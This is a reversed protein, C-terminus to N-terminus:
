GVEGVQPYGRKPLVSIEVPSVPIKSGQEKQEQRWVINDILILGMLFFAANHPNFVIPIGYVLSFWILARLIPQKFSFAFTAMTALILKLFLYVLGGELFIKPLEGEVYGFAKAYRSSGFLIIAGQYTSGLGIGTIINPYRDLNRFYTFDWALRRAQEGSKQGREFRDYFNNFAKEMKISVPNDGIALLITLIIILPLLLRGLVKGLDKLSYLAYVIILTYALYVLVAGRSGTMFAAALGFIIGISVVWLSYNMRILAWM